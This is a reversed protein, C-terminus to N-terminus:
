GGQNKRIIKRITKYYIPYLVDFLKNYIGVGVFWIYVRIKNKNYESSKLPQMGNDRLYEM